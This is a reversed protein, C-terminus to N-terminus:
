EDEEQIIEYENHRATYQRIKEIDEESFSIIWDRMGQKYFEYPKVSPVCHAIFYPLPIYEGDIVNLIKM